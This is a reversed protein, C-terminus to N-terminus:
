VRRVKRFAAVALRSGKFRWTTTRASGDLLRVSRTVQSESSVARADTFGRAVASRSEPLGISSRKVEITAARLLSMLLCIAMWSSSGARESLPVQKTDTGMRSAVSYEGCVSGVM